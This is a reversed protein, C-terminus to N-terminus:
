GKNRAAAVNNIAECLAKEELLIQTLVGKREKQPKSKSMKSRKVHRQARMYM